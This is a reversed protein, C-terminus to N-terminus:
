FILLGALQGILWGLLCGTMGHALTGVFLGAVQCGAELWGILLDALWGVM